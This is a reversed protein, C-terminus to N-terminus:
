SFARVSCCAWSCRMGSYAATCQVIYIPPWGGPEADSAPRSKTQLIRQFDSKYYRSHAIICGHFLFTRFLQLFRSVPPFVSSLNQVANHQFGHPLICRCRLTGTRPLYRAPPWPLVPLTLLQTGEHYPFGGQRAPFNPGIPM